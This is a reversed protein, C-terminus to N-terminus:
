PSISNSLKFESKFINMGRIINKAVFVIISRNSDCFILKVYSSYALRVMVVSARFEGNASAIAILEKGFESSSIIASTIPGNISNGTNYMTEFNVNIILFDPNNKVHLIGNFYFFLFYDFNM